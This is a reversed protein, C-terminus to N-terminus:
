SHHPILAASLAGGLLPTRGQACLPHALGRASTSSAFIITCRGCLEEAGASSGGFRAFAIADCKLSSPLASSEKWLLQQRVVLWVRGAGAVHAVAWQWQRLWGLAAVWM